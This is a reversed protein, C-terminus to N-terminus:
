TWVYVSKSWLCFINKWQHIEKLKIKDAIEAQFTQYIRFSLPLTTFYQKKCIYVAVQQDTPITHLIDPPHPPINLYFCFIM